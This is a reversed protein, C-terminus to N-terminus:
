RYTGPLWGKINANVFAYEKVLQGRKYTCETTEFAIIVFIIVVFQNTFIDM